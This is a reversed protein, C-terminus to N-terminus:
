TVSVLQGWVPWVQFQSLVEEEGREQRREGVNVQDERKEGEGVMAEEEEEKEEVLMLKQLKQQDSLEVMNDMTKKMQFYSFM